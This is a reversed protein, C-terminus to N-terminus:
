ASYFRGLERLRALDYRVANRLMKQVADRIAISYPKNTFTIGNSINEPYRDVFDTRLEGDPFTLQVYIGQDTHAWWEGDPMRDNWTIAKIVIKM